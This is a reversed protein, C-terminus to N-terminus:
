VPPPLPPVSQDGVEAIDDLFAEFDRDERGLRKLACWGLFMVHEIRTTEASLSSAPIDYQRELRVLDAPTADVTETRGGAYTVKLQM